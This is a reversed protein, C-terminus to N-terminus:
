LQTDVAAQKKLIDAEAKTEAIIAKIIDAMGKIGIVQINDKDVENMWAGSEHSAASIRICDSTNFQNTADGTIAGAVKALVLCAKTCFRALPTDPNSGPAVCRHMNAAAVAGDPANAPLIPMKEFPLLDERMSIDCPVDASIGADGNTFDATLNADVVSGM